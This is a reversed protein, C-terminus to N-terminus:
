RWTIFPDDRCDGCLNRLEFPDNQNIKCYIAMVYKESGCVSCPGSKFIKNPITVNNALDYESSDPQYPRSIFSSPIFLTQQKPNKKAM